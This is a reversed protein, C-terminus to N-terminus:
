YEKHVLIKMMFLSIDPYNLLDTKLMKKNKIKRGSDRVREKKKKKFRM